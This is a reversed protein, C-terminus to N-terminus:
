TLTDDQTEEWMQKNVSAAKKKKARKHKKKKKRPPSNNEYLTKYANATNMLVKYTTYPMCAVGEFTQEHPMNM